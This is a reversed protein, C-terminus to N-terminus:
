RCVYIDKSSFVPVDTTSINKHKLVINRCIRKYEDISLMGKGLFSRTQLKMIVRRADGTQKVASDAIRSIYKIKGNEDLNQEEGIQESYGMVALYDAGNDLLQGIKQSYWALGTRENLPTEYYINVAFKIAPNIYKVGMRIEKFLELLHRSKWDAWVYFDEKYDKYIKRGNYEKVGGFFNSAKLSIGTEQEFIKKAFKDSGESYKIIFDDQILIGDLDYKALDIYLNKIKERVEEKFINAGYGAVNSGSPSLSKSMNDETKLFSLSRTAMWGYVKVNYKRASSIVEPLIDYVVCSHKTKFYVGSKCKNPVNFHSRDHLNHFVRVFVTNIGKSTVEQFFKDLNNHYKKNFVFVQAGTIRYLGEYNYIEESLALGTQFFYLLVIIIIKKM